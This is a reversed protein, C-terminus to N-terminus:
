LQLDAPQNITYPIISPIIGQSAYMNNTINTHLEPM